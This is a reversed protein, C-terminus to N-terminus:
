LIELIGKANGALTETVAFYPLSRAIPTRWAERTGDCVIGLGVVGFARVMAPHGEDRALELLPEVAREDGVRGLAAAAAARTVGSGAERLTRVLIGVLDPEEMLWLSVASSWLMQAQFRSQVLAERLEKRASSTGMIGLAIAIHGRARPDSTREFKQTLVRRTQNAARDDVHVHALAASIAYAGIVAANREGRLRDLLLDTVRGAADSEGMEGLAHTQVGLGLAAWPQDQNSGSRLALQLARQSKSLIEEDLEGEVGPQISARGLAIAAFRRELTQGRQSVRILADIGDEDADSSMARVALGLAVCAGGRAMQSHKKDMAADILEDVVVRRSGVRADHALRGLAVFGHARSIQSTREGLHQMLWAIQGTRSVVAEVNRRERLDRSPLAPDIPVAALGLAILAAVHLDDRISSEALVDILSLAIRQRLEPEENQSAILGLAFAAFARQRTSANGALHSDEANALAGELLDLGNPAGLIGLALLASESVELTEADIFPEIAAVYTPIDEVAAGRGLRALAILSATQIDNHRSSALLELILPLVDREVVARTPREGLRRGEDVGSRILPPRRLRDPAWLYADRELLWWYDWAFPGGTGGGPTSPANRGPNPNGPSPTLPGPRNGPVGIPGPPPVPLPPARFVSGHAPELPASALATVLLLALM